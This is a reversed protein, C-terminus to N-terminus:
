AISRRVTLTVARALSSTLLAQQHSEPAQNQESDSRKGRDGAETAEPIVGITDHNGAHQEADDQQQEGDGQQGIPVIGVGVLAVIM